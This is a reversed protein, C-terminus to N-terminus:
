SSQGPSPTVCSSTRNPPLLFTEFGHRGRIDNVTAEFAAALQHRDQIRREKWGTAMGATDARAAGDGPQDLQDRLEIFRKALVPHRAHLDNLDSRTDLTQSLIVGRGLELLCLARSASEAGPTGAEDALALAAADGALGAFGELVHQQDARDLRRPATQALLRVATEMLDAARQPHTQATLLAAMRAAYIRMSPTGSVVEETVRAYATSAEDRDAPKGARKFRTRLADGLNSLCRALDPHDAPTAQVASRCVNISEELDAQAGTREFSLRLTGGLNSLYMVRYPHDAPAAHILPFSLKRVM